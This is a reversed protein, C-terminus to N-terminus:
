VINAISMKHPRAVTSLKAVTQEVADWSAPELGAWFDKTPTIMEYDKPSPTGANAFHDTCKAIYNGMYDCDRYKALARLASVFYQAQSSDRRGIAILTCNFLHESVLRPTHAGFDKDNEHQKLLSNTDDMVSSFVDLNGDKLDSWYSASRCYLALMSSSFSHSPDGLGPRGELSEFLRVFEQPINDDSDSDTWLLLSPTSSAEISILRDFLHMATWLHHYEPLISLAFQYAWQLWMAATSSRSTEFYYASIYLCITVHDVTLDVGDSELVNKIYRQAHDCFVKGDGFSVDAIINNRTALSIISFLLARDLPSDHQATSKARSVISAWDTLPWLSQYTIRFSELLPELLSWEPLEPPVNDDVHFAVISDIKHKSSQAAELRKTAARRLDALDISGNSTMSGSRRPSLTLSSLSVVSNARSHDKSPSPMMPTLSSSNTNADLDLSDDDVLPVASSILEADANALSEPVPLQSNRALTRYEAVTQLARSM